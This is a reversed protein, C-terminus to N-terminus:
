AVHTETGQAVMDAVTANLYDTDATDLGTYLSGYRSEGRLESPDEGNERLATVVDRIHIKDAAKCRSLKRM